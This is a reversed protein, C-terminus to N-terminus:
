WRARFAGLREAASGAGLHEELLERLRRESLPGAHSYVITGDADVFLTTPMGRGEVARFFAGDPDEVLTYTVGTRRALEVAEAVRDERDVGVFRISDGLDAHVTEFDPMEEVCFACWTAWFNVVTPTGRWSTTDVEEDQGLVSLTAAPLTATTSGEQSTASAACGGALAGATLLAAIQMCRM